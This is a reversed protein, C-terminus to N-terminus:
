KFELRLADIKEAWESVEFSDHINQLEEILKQHSDTFNYARILGKWLRREMSPKYDEDPILCGAACKTDNIGRYNCFGQESVSNRNQKMLHRKVFDIVETASKEGLNHITVMDEAKKLYKIKLKEDVNKM